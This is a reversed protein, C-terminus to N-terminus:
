DDERKEEVASHDSNIYRLDYYKDFWKDNLNHLYNSIRHVVVVNFIFDIIFNETLPYVSSTSLVLIGSVWVSTCYGCSLLEKMFSCTNKIRERINRLLVSKVVLETLAETFIGM